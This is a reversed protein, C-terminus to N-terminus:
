WDVTIYPGTFTGDWHWEFHEGTDADVLKGYYVESGFIGNMAITPLSEIYDKSYTEEALTAM